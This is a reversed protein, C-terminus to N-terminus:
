DKGLIDLLVEKIGALARGRHSVLNKREMPLEAMTLGLEPIFFLPDYGFGSDGRYGRIIEGSCRGEVVHEEGGPGVLAMVCVFVAQRKGDPVDAMESLLKENNAKYDKERGAFRSSYIGPAGALADVVLGSDDALTWEGTIRHVARAKKLANERFSDGDEAVDPIEPYDALSSVSFDLGALLAKLEDVKHVNKTALILKM